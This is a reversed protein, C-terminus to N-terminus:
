SFLGGLFKFAQLNQLDNKAAFLMLGLVLALGVKFSAEQVRLSVPRRAVAEYAYFMLHGGDLIPIPLLNVFGLGTSILAGLQVMMILLVLWGYVGPAASLSDQAVKGTTSAMGIVGSIQDGNEHGTFIRGLYTLTTSITEGVMQGGRVLAQAPNYHQLHLPTSKMGIRGLKAAGPSDDEAIVQRRPTATVSLREGARNIEFTLPTGAHLNITRSVQDFNKIGAGNVSVIRDGARLGSAEAISGPIVEGIVPPAVPEGWAGVFVAFLLAALLFNAVPGAVAIIARQWLPKFHHFEGVAQAGYKETIQRRLEELDEGDPLSADNTDGSFRVYGGIPIWGIRWEVGSKDVRRAIARGFGLSFADIRTRFLKGALFHGLEHVGILLTIMPIFALVAIGFQRVIDIM